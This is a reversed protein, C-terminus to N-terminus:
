HKESYNNVWGIIDNCDRLDLLNPMNQMQERLADPSFYSTTFIIGKNARNTNIVHSFERIIGVGVKREPSYKKCEVLFKLPFGSINQLAIIDLGGDRTQQTLQVEFNHHRLLEAIMKEFARPQLKYLQTHDRYIDSIIRRINTVEDLLIIKQQMTNTEPDAMIEYSTLQLEDDEEFHIDYKSFDINRIFEITPSLLTHSDLIGSLYDVQKAMRLNFYNVQNILTLQQGIGPIKKLISQYELINQVSPSQLDDIRKRAERIAKLGPSDLQRLIKHVSFQLKHSSIFNRFTDEM